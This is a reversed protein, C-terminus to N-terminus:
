RSRRARWQDHESEFAAAVRDLESLEQHIVPQRDAPAIAALDELMARLRSIVQVQARGSIRIEDVALHVYDSWDPRPVILRPQGGDDTRILPRLPREVLRRLLDHLRDIAQVATTPDNTSPSLARVAVDVIQRFGFAAEQQLAREPALTVLGQLREGLGDDTPRSIRFLPAGEPLFDGVMPVLEAVTDSRRLVEVLSDEDITVLTGAAPAVVMDSAAADAARWPVAVEPGDGVVQPFLRDIAQRTETTISEIVSTARIAHAMHNIYYVFAGVCAILLLFAVFISFGPVFEIGTDASRVDRLVVLTYLFTAVFLGLVTQNGRDRLFTRMVRPSLQSSALQLVLMTITFVLATFTLMSQAITALVSRAGEASGGFHLSGLQELGLQRDIALTLGALVFAGAAFVAPLFWLSSRLHEVM